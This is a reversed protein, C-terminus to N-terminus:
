ASIHKELRKRLLFEAYEFDDLTDVDVSREVPMVHAYSNETYYTGKQMLSCRLVYVAGNPYYTPKYDQRNKLEDEFLPEIKGDSALYKHWGVPHREKCFSIVSDAKNAKYIDITNDIDEALRLPSTPQLVV